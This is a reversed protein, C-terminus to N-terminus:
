EEKQAELIHAIYAAKKVPLKAGKKITPDGIEWSACIEQLADLKMAKLESEEYLDDEGGEDEDEDEDEDEAEEDEDEDEEAEEFLAAILEERIDKVTTGELEIEYEEALATLDAKKMKKIQDETVDSAEAEDEDEDEDEEDADEEDEAEDDELPDDDPYAALLTDVWKNVRTEVDLQTADLEDVTCHMEIGPAIFIEAGGTMRRKVSVTLKATAMPAM